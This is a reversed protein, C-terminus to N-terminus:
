TPLLAGGLGLLLLLLGLITLLVRMTGDDTIADFWRVHRVTDYLWWPHGTAALLYLAGGVIAVSRDEGLHYTGDVQLSLYVMIGLIGFYILVRQWRRLPHPALPPSPGKAHTGADRSGDAGDAVRMEAKITWRIIIALGVALATLYVVVNLRM